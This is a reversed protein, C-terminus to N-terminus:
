NFQQKNRIKIKDFSRNTNANSMYRMEINLEKLESKIYHYLTKINNNNIEYEPILNFINNKLLENFDDNRIIKEENEPKYEVIDLINTNINYQKLLKKIKKQETRLKSEVKFARNTNLTANLFDMLDQEIMRANLKTLGEHEEIKEFFFNDFGGMARITRYLKLEYNKNKPSKCITKHLECRAKYSTTSGIYFINDKEKSQIKYFTYNNEPETDTDTDSDTM